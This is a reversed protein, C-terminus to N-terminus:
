LLTSLSANVPRALFIRLARPFHHQPMFLFQPGCEENVACDPRRRRRAICYENPPHMDASVAPTWAGSIWSGYISPVLNERSVAKFFPGTRATKKLTLQGTHWNARGYTSRM